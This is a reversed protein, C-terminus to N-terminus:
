IIYLKLLSKTNIVAEKKSKEATGNLFLESFYNRNEGDVEYKKESGTVIKDCLKRLYLLILYFVM